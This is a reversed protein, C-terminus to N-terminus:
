WFRWWPRASPVFALIRGHRVVTAGRIREKLRRFPIETGPASARLDHIVTGRPVEAQLGELRSDTPAVMPQSVATPTWFDRDADSSAKTQRARALLLELFQALSASWWVLYWPDHGVWWVEADDGEPALALGDGNGYQSARFVPGFGAQADMAEATPEFELAPHEFGRTIRLFEEVPAPLTGGWGRRLADIEADTAPPLIRLADQEGDADPLPLLSRLEDIQREIREM